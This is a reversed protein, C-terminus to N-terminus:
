VGFPCCAWNPGLELNPRLFGEVEEVQWWGSATERNALQQWVEETLHRKLLSSCTESFVPREGATTDSYM